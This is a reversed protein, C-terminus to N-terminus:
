KDNVFVTAVVGIQDLKLVVRQKLQQETLNFRTSYAQKQFTVWAQEIHSSGYIKPHPVIGAEFLQQHAESPLRVGTIPKSSNYRSCKNKDISNHRGMLNSYAKMKPDDWLSFPEVPM